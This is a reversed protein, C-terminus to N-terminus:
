PTVLVQVRSLSQVSSFLGSRLALFLFDLELLVSDPRFLIAAVCLLIAMVFLLVSCICM